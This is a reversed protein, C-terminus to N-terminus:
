KSKKYAKKCEATGCTRVQFADQTAVVRPRKCIVCFMTFVKKGLKQDHKLSGAKIEIGYKATIAKEEDTPTAAGADTADTKKRRGM